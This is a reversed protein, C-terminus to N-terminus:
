LFSFADQRGLCSIVVVLRAASHKLMCCAAIKLRCVVLTYTRQQPFCTVASMPLSIPMTSTCFVYRCPCFLFVSLLVLLPLLSVLPICATLCRSFVCIVDSAVVPRRAMELLSVGWYLHHHFFVVVVAVVVRMAGWFFSVVLLM